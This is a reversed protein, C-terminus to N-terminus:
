VRYGRTSEAKVFKDMKSLGHPPTRKHRIQKSLMVNELNIWTVAHILVESRKIVSYYKM